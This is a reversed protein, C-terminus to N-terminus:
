GLHRVFVAMTYQGNIAQELTMNKDSDRTELIYKM